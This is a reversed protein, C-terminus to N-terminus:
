AIKKLLRKRIRSLTEPKIGLYSAIHYQPVRQILEPRKQQLNLYREEPSLTIFESLQEHKAGLMQEVGSRCFTEFRPHKKYLEKEKKTDLIAVLCEEECIFSINSPTQNIMSDFNIVPQNETFFGTTKEVGDALKFERVCGEIVFFAERSVEGEKLLFSGKEIIKIPFSKEIEREEESTLTTLQSMLEVLIHKKMTPKEVM